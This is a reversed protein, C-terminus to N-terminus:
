GKSNPRLTASWCARGSWELVLGLGWPRREWPRLDNEKKANRIRIIIWTIKHQTDTKGVVDMLYPRCNCLAPWLRLRCVTPIIGQQHTLPHLSLCIYLHHPAHFPLHTAPQIFPHISLSIQSHTFSPTSPHTSLHTAPHTSPHVSQHTSPCIFSHISPQISPYTPTSPQPVPHTIPYISAYPPLLCFGLSQDQGEKPHTKGQRLLSGSYGKMSDAM